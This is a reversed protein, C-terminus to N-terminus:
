SRSEARQLPRPNKSSALASETVWQVCTPLEATRAFEHLAETFHALGLGTTPPYTSNTTGRAEPSKPEGIPVVAEDVDEAGSIPGLYRLYVFGKRVCAYLVHDASPRGTHEIRADDSEPEALADVLEGIAEPTSADFERDTGPRLRITARLGTM